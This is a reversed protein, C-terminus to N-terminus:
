VSCIASFSVRRPIQENNASMTHCDESTTKRRLTITNTRRCFVANTLVNQTQQITYPTHTGTLVKIIRPYIVCKKDVKQEIKTANSNQSAGLLCGIPYSFGFLSPDRAVLHRTHASFHERLLEYVDGQVGYGIIERSECGDFRTESM